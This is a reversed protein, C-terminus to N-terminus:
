PLSFRDCSRTGDNCAGSDGAGALLVLCVGGSLAIANCHKERVFAGPM